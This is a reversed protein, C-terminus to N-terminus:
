WGRPCLLLCIRFFVTLFGLLIGWPSQPWWSVPPSISPLIIIRKWFMPTIPFVDYLNLWCSSSVKLFVIIFLPIYIIPSASTFLLQLLNRYFIIYIILRVSPKLCTPSAYSIIYEGDMSSWKFTSACSDHCYFFYWAFRDLCTLFEPVQAAPWPHKQFPFYLVLVIIMVAYQIVALALSPPAYLWCSSAESIVFIWFSGLFLNQISRLLFIEFHICWTSCIM